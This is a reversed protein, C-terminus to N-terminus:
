FAVVLALFLLVTFTMVGASRHVRRYMGLRFGLIDAMFSLHPGAFLPIM